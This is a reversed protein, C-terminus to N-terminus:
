TDGKYDPIVCATLASATPGRRNSLVQGSQYARHVEVMVGKLRMRRCVVVEQHHHTGIRQLPWDPDVREPLVLLAEEVRTSSAKKM